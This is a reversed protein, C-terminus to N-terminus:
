RSQKSPARRPSARASKSPPRRPRLFWLAILGPVVVVATRPRAVVTVVGIGMVGMMWLPVRELLASLQRFAIWGAALVSGVRVCAAALMKSWNDTPGSYLLLIGTALLLVAFAGLLHRKMPGATM